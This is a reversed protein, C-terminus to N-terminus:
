LYILNIEQAGGNNIESFQQVEPKSKILNIVESKLQGTGIGHIIVARLKRKKIMYDLFANCKRIQYDLIHIPNANSMAHNLNDIHLDIVDGSFAEEQYKEATNDKIKKAIKVEHLVLYNPNVLFIKKGVKMRVKGKAIGEFTGKKGSKTSMIGDGIWLDELKIM